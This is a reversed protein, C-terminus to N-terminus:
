SPSLRADGRGVASRPRLNELVFASALVVLMVTLFAMVPGAKPRSALLTADTPDGVVTLVVREDEPVGNAAQRAAIYDRLAAAAREAVRVAAPPSAAVADVDIFPLPGLSPSSRASVTVTADGAADRPLVSQIADTQALHAYVVALSSFRSPDAFPREVSGVDGAGQAEDDVVPAKYGEPFGHETVLLTARAEWKEAARYALRPSGNVLEVRVASLLGLMSGALLGLVVLFRFRWLVRVYLRLDM